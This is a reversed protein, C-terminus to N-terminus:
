GSKDSSDTDKDDKLNQRLLHVEEALKGLEMRILKQEKGASMFYRSVRLLCIIILAFIFGYAILIIPALLYATGKTVALIGEIM